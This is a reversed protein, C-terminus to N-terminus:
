GPFYGSIYRDDYRCQSMNGLDVYRDEDVAVKNTKREPEAWSKELKENITEDYSHWQGVPTVIFEEKKPTIVKIM